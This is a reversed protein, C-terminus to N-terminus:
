FHPDYYESYGGLNLRTGGNVSEGELVWLGHPFNKRSRRKTFVMIQGNPNPAFQYEASGDQTSGSIVNAIATQVQVVRDSVVKMLTVAHRDTWCCVYGGSGIPLHNYAKHEMLTTYEIESTCLIGLSPNPFQDKNSM